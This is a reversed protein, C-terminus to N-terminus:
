VKSFAWYIKRGYLGRPSVQLMNVHQSPLARETVVPNRRVDSELDVIDLFFPQMVGITKIEDM